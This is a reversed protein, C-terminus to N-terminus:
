ALTWFYAHITSSKIDSPFRMSSGLNGNITLNSSITTAAGVDLNGGLSVDGTTSVKNALLNDTETKDYYSQLALDMAAISTFKTFLNDTELKNYYAEAIQINTLYPQLAFDISTYNTLLLTVRETTNYYAEALQNNTLYSQLTLDLLAISSYVNSNSRFLMTDVETNTYTNLILTSLENDIDDIETKTYYNSFGINSVILDMEAKNYHNSFNINAILSYLEIKNYHNPIDCDGVFEISRDLSQFIAIPQGGDNVNQSFAFGSTGAYMEVFVGGSRPNMVIEGHVTLPFTLSIQNNTIDINESNTYLQNALLSDTAVKDYYNSTLNEFIHHKDIIQKPKHKQIIIM